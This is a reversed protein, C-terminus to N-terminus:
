SGGAVEVTICNVTLPLPKDQRICVRGYRSWVSSLQVELTDTIAPIAADYGIEVTRAQYEFLDRFNNVGYKFERSKEVTVFASPQATSKAKRQGAPQALDLTQLDATHPLGITCVAAHTDLTVSGNEVTLGEIVNGDALAVVEEGELHSLGRFTDRAFEWDTRAANRYSTPITKNAIASVLTASSYASITLRLAVEVGEDNDYRFIIKDGVDGSKFLSASATLTLVEPSEWTVGGSITITTATTATKEYIPEGDEDRGALTLSYNRGDYTLGSDVFFAERIDKFYRTHLREIYRRTQGGITRRVVFYVATEDGERICCVSEFWGDTEHRSWAYVKQEDMFTLTAATGDDLICWVVSFPQKQYAWDVIQKGDFLHPSRATLDIGTFSDSDLSYRLTRIRNGMDEVYMATNGIIVPVRESSGNAGQVDVIPTETALFIGDRGAILQETASTLTLLKNLPVFHKIGNAQTSDLKGSIMEDDLLPNSTGFNTRAGVVSAWFTSPQQTTGALWLRQKHYAVAQPYGQDESWAAKAWIYTANTSVILDPIRVLVDADVSTASNYTTIRVIGYGSHLYQWTVGGDSQIGETHDPKYTGTTATNTAQYYHPGARRRQGSSVAQAPEWRSDTADDPELEMYFLEGVMTADFINGGTATINIGTGSVASPDVTISTDTNKELFPGYEYDFDGVTWSTNSTRTVDQPAYDNHVVTLVDNSQAYNLDFLDLEDWPTTVTYVRSATGASSYATFATGNINNGLFDTLEFTNATKNAVRFTRGNLETMGVIDAIYVDDGNNYGHGASTIVVPNAQTAGTITKTSEVIEAGDSVIRLYEDGLAIAYTQEENFQFPVLRVAKSPYRCEAVYELGPRNSAGGYQRIIFNKAIRLGIYYLEQDIRGYLGPTIEGAAFSPQNLDESM